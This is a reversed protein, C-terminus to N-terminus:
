CPYCSQIIIRENETCHVLGVRVGRMKIFVNAADKLVIMNAAQTSTVKLEGKKNEKQTAYIIAEEIEKTTVEDLDKIHIMTNQTQRIGLTRIVAEGNIRNLAKAM